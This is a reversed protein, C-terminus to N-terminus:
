TQTGSTKVPPTVYTAHERENSITTVNEQPRHLETLARRVTMTREDVFEVPETERIKLALMLTKLTCGRGITAGPPLRVDCPLQYDLSVSEGTTEVALASTLRRAVLAALDTYCTYCSATKASERLMEDRLEILASQQNSTIDSLQVEEGVEEPEEPAEPPVCYKCTCERGTSNAVHGARIELCLAELNSVEAALAEPTDSM